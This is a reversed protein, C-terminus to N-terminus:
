AGFLALVSPDDLAPAVADADPLEGDTVYPVGVVHIGAARAAAVGPPSDEFAIADAPAVGLRACAALYIDPAPKYQPVEDGAVTALFPSDPGTLGAGELVRDLFVRPSNSAVAMPLGREQLLAILALAGPRPSVPKRAEEMVLVHLEDILAHGTGPEADLLRELNLALAEGSSGIMSLKEPLTFTRGRRSWLIEEARTWAEETDLLLGDNDFVVARPVAPPPRRPVRRIIASPGPVVVPAM